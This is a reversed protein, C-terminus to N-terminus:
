KIVRFGIAEFDKQPSLNLLERTLIEKLEQDDVPLPLHYDMGNELTEIREDRFAHATIAVITIDSLDQRESQRIEMTAQLGNKVPMQVDMFVIHYYNEESANLIDIAEQGDRATDVKLGFHLLKLTTIERGIDNDDVVLARFRSFDLEDFKRVMHDVQKRFQEEAPTVKKCPIEVTVVTGVGQKSDLLMTGGAKYVISRALSLGLGKGGQKYNEYVFEQFATQKQSEDMGIGNDSFVLKVQIYDENEEESFIECKAYGGEIGYQLSNRMILLCVQSLRVSDVKLFSLKDDELEFIVQQKKEKATVHLAASLEGLFDEMNVTQEDIILKGMEVVSMDLMNNILTTLEDASKKTKELYALIEENSLGPQMALALMGNLGYLPTRIDHSVNLLFDSKAQNAKQAIDLASEVLRAKHREEEYIMTIDQKTLCVIGQLGKLYRYELYKRKTVGAECASFSIGASEETELRKIMTSLCMEQLMSRLDDGLYDASLNERIWGDFDRIPLVNTHNNKKLGPAPEFSIRQATGTQVDILIISEYTQPMLEGLLLELIDLQKLEGFIM